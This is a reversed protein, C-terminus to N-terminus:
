SPTRPCDAVFINRTFGDRRDLKVQQATFWDGLLVSTLRPVVRTRGFIKRIQQLVIHLQRESLNASMNRAAIVTLLADSKVTGSPVGVFVGM